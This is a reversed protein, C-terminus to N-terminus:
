VTVEKPNTTFNAYVTQTRPRINKSNIKSYPTCMDIFRQLLEQYQPEYAPTIYLWDDIQHLALMHHKYMLKVTLTSRNLEIYAQNLRYGPIAVKTYITPARYQQEYVTGDITRHM